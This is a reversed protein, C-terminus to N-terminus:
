HEVKLETTLALILKILDTTGLNSDSLGTPTSESNDFMKAFDEISTKVSDTSYTIDAHDGRSAEFYEDVETHVYAAVQSLADIGGLFAAMNSSVTSLTTSSMDSGAYKSAVRALLISTIQWVEGTLAEIVRTFVRTSADNLNKLSAKRNHSLDHASIGNSDIEFEIAPLALPSWGSIAAISTATAFPVISNSDATSIFEHSFFGTTVALVYNHYQKLFEEMLIELSTYLPGWSPNAQYKNRRGQILLEDIEDRVLVCLSSMDTSLQYITANAIATNSDNSDIWYLPVDFPSIDETLSKVKDAKTKIAQVITRCANIFDTNGNKIDFVQAIPAYYNETPM